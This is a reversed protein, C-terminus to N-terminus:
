VTRVHEGGDFAGGGPGAHWGVPELRPRQGIHVGVHTAERTSSPLSAVCAGRTLSAAPRRRRRASPPPSGSSKRVNPEGRPQIERSPTPPRVSILERASCSKGADLFASRPEWDSHKSRRGRRAAAQEVVLAAIDHDAARLRRDLDPGAAVLVREPLCLEPLEDDPAAGRGAVHGVWARLAPTPALRSAKLDAQAVALVAGSPVGQATVQDVVAGWELAAAALADVGVREALARLRLSDM